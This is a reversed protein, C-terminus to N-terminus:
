ETNDVIANIEAVEKESLPYDLCEVIEDVQMDVRAGCIASTVGEHALVWNIALQTPTCERRDAYERLNEVVRLHRDYAPSVFDPHSARHDGEEFKWEPTFKGTLLGSAIPSYALVAIENDECFPLIEEEAERHLLNYRPQVSELRATDLATELDGIAFNSMGFHRIKGENKLEQLAQVAVEVPTKHDPWHIQYLDIVERKLRKLSAECAAKLYSPQNSRGIEGQHDFQVAGKTAIYVDQRNGLAEALVTESRGGGYIDATDFFNIGNELAAHVAGISDRDDVKGWWWGGMQWCGFCIRSVKLDTRGLQAYDM